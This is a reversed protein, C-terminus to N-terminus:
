TEERLIITYGVARPKGAIHSFSMREIWVQKPSDASGYGITDAYFEQKAGSKLLGLLTDRDAYRNPGTLRGILTIRLAGVGVHSLTTGGGYRRREALDAELEFLIEPEAAFVYGGLKVTL